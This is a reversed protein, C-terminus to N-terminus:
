IKCGVMGADELSQLARLMTPLASDFIETDPNLFLLVDGTAHAAGLNNARSFGLNEASQMYRVEPFERKLMEGCGDFSANDIVLVEYSIGSTHKSLSRVCEKTFAASKWNIIVVSLDM